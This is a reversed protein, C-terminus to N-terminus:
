PTACVTRNVRSSCLGATTSSETSPRPRWRTTGLSRGWCSSELNAAIVISQREYADAFVQFVLRAGDADLPLFGLEDIVLLSACGM